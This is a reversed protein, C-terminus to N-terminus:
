KEKDSIVEFRTELIHNIFKESLKVKRLETILKMKEALSIQLKFLGQPLGALFVEADKPSSFTPIIEEEISEVKKKLTTELMKKTLRKKDEKAEDKINKIMGNIYQVLTTQINENLSSYLQNLILVVFDEGYQNYMRDIKTYVFKKMARSVYINRKAKEIAKMIRPSDQYNKKPEKLKLIPLSEDKYAKNPKITFKITKWRIEPILEYEVTIDTFNNIEAVAPILVRNQLDYKSEVAKKPLSLFDTLQQKTITISGIKLHDRLFQYLEYAYSNTIKYTIKEKLDIFYEPLLLLKLIETPIEYKLFTINPGDIYEVTSLMAAKLDVNLNKKNIYNFEFSVETTDKLEKKFRTTNVQLASALLSYDLQQPGSSEKITLYRCYNKIETLLKNLQEPTNLETSQVKKEPFVFQRDNYGLALNKADIFEFLLDSDPEANEIALQTLLNDNLDNFVHEKTKKDLALWNIDHLRKELVKNVFQPIKERNINLDTLPIEKNSYLNELILEMDTEPYIDKIVKVAKKRFSERLINQEKAYIAQIAKLVTISLKKGSTKYTTLASHKKLDANVINDSTVAKSNKNSKM